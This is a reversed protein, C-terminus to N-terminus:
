KPMPGLVNTPSSYYFMFFVAAGIGMLALLLVVIKPDIAGSLNGVISQEAGLAYKWTSYAYASSFNNTESTTKLQRMMLQTTLQVQVQKGSTTESEIEQPIVELTEISIGMTHYFSVRLPQRESTPELRIKGSQANLILKFHRNLHEKIKIPLIIKHGSIQRPLKYVHPVDHVKSNNRTTETIPQNIGELYISYRNMSSEDESSDSFWYLGRKFSFFPAVRSTIKKIKVSEPSAILVFDHSKRTILPFTFIKLFIYYSAPGFLATFYVWYQDMLVLINMLMNDSYFITELSM